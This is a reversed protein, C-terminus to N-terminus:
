RREGDRDLVTEALAAIAWHYENQGLANPITADARIFYGRNHLSMQLPPLRHLRHEVAGHMWVSSAQRKQFLVNPNAQSRAADEVM